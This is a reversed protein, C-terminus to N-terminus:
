SRRHLSAERHSTEGLADVWFVEGRRECRRYARRLRGGAIWYQVLMSAISRLLRLDQRLGRRPEAATLTRV